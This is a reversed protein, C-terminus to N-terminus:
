GDNESAAQMQGTSLVPQADPDGQVVLVPVALARIVEETVSRQVLRRVGGVLDSGIVVMLPSYAEALDALVDPVRGQRIELEVDAGHMRMTDLLPEMHKEADRQMMASATMPGNAGPPQVQTSSQLGAPLQVVHVLVARAGLRRAFGAAQLCVSEADTAFNVAVLM